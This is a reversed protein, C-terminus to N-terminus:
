SAGNLLFNNSIPMILAFLLVSFITRMKCTDLHARGQEEWVVQLLPLKAEYLALPGLSLTWNNYSQCNLCKLNFKFPWFFTSLSKLLYSTTKKCSYSSSFTMRHMKGFRYSYSASQLEAEHIISQGVVRWTSKGQSRERAEESGHSFTRSRRSKHYKAFTSSSITVLIRYM